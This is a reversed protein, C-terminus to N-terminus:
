LTDVDCLQATFTPRLGLLAGEAIYRLIVGM